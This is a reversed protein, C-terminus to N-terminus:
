AHRRRPTGLVAPGRRPRRRPRARPGRTHRSGQSGRSIHTNGPAGEAALAPCLSLPPCGTWSGGGVPRPHTSMGALHCGHQGWLPCRAPATSQEMSPASPHSCGSLPAPHQAPSPATPLPALIPHLPHSGGWYSPPSPIKAWGRGGGAVGKKDAADPPGPRPSTVRHRPETRRGTDWSTEQRAVSVEQPHGSRGTGHLRAMLGPGPKDWSVGQLVWQEGLGM